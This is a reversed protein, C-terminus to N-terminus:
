KAPELTPQHDPKEVVTPGPKPVEGKEYKAAFVRLEAAADQCGRCAKSKNVTLEQYNACVREIRAAIQRLRTPTV